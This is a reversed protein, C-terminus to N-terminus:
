ASTRPEALPRAMQEAKPEVIIRHIARGLDDAGVFDQRTLHHAWLYHRVTEIRSL